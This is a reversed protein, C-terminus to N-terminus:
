PTTTLLIPLRGRATATFGGSRGISCTDRGSSPSGAGAVRMRWLHAELASLPACTSRPNDLPKALVPPEFDRSAGLASMIPRHVSPLCFGVSSWAFVLLLPWVWLGSARHLDFNLKHGRAGKRIVWAPKWRVWWSPGAPRGAPVAKRRMPLTLYFGVFCDLTWILAAIGFAWIGWAGLALSYHVQYLFPIINQAGDALVAYRFRLRVQGTYPDAWVTDYGLPPQGARAQVAVRVAHEPPIDLPVFAVQAGTQRAVREALTVGDLPVAGQVPPAARSMSPRSAMTLEEEWPLLTGTAGAVILFLAMTLGAWRHLVVWFQRTLSISAPRAFM